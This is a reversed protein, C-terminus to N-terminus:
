TRIRDGGADLRQPISEADVFLERGRGIWRRQRSTMDNVLRGTTYFRRFRCAGPAGSTVTSRVSPAQLVLVREGDAGRTSCGPNTDKGVAIGLHEVQRAELFDV